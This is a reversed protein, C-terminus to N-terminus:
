RVDAVIRMAEGRRSAEVVIRDKRKVKNVVLLAQLINRVKKGNIKHVVDGSRLGVQTLPSGCRLGYVSFGDVKGRENRHWDVAALSMAKKITSYEDILAREVAYHTESLRTIGHLNDQCARRRSRPPRAEQTSLESGAAVADKRLQAKLLNSEHVIRPIIKRSHLKPREPPGPEPAASPEPAIGPEPSPAVPAEALEIPEPEPEPEPKPEPPPSAPAAPESRVPPAEAPPEPAIESVQPDAPEVPPANVNLPQPPLHVMAQRDAQPELRPTPLDLGLTMSLPLAAAAGLIGATALAHGITRLHRLSPHMKNRPDLDSGKSM